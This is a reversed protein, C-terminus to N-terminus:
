SLHAVLSQIFNSSDAPSIFLILCIIMTLSFYYVNLFIDFALHMVMTLILAVYRTEEIWLLIGVGGEWGLTGWTCFRILLMNKTLSPFSFRKFRDLNLAYYVATGQWWTNGLAKWYFNRLYIISLQLQMLRVAWPSITVTTGTFDQYGTSMWHDISLAAGSPAFILLFSMLRIVEDGGQLVYPNRNHLSILVLFQIIAALPTFFGILMCISSITQIALLLYIVNDNPPLYSFLNFRIKEFRKQHLSHPFVGHVGYWKRANSYQSVTVLLVATSFIIRFLALTTAQEPQFFFTNWATVLTELPIM